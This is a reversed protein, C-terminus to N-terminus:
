DKFEAKSASSRPAILEESQAIRINGPEHAGRAAGYGFFISCTSLAHEGCRCSLEKWLKEWKALQDLWNIPDVM